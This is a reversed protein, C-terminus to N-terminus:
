EQSRFGGQNAEVRGKGLFPCLVFCVCGGVLSLCTKPPIRSHNTVLVNSFQIGHCMTPLPPPSFLPFSFFWVLSAIIYHHFSFHITHSLIHTKKKVTYSFVNSFALLVLVCVRYKILLKNLAVRYGQHLRTERHTYTTLEYINEAGFGKTHRCEISHICICLTVKCFGVRHAFAWESSRHRRTLMWVCM